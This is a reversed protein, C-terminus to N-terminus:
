ETFLEDHMKKYTQELIESAAAHPRRDLRALKEQLKEYWHAIAERTAVGNARLNAGDDFFHTPITIMKDLWYVFVSEEDAKLEYAEVAAAIHPYDAFLRLTDELAAEDRRAKEKLQDATANLTSMDGTVLETLDHVLAYLMVKETSLEPAYRKAIELATLALTFCHHADSENEGNTLRTLRKIVGFESLLRSLDIIQQLEAGPIGAKSGKDKMSQTYAKARWGSLAIIADSVFIHSVSGPITVVERSTNSEKATKM